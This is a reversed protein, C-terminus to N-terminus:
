LHSQQYPLQRPRVINPEISDLPVSANLQGDCMFAGDGIGEISIYDRFLEAHLESTLATTNTRSISVLCNDVEDPSRVLLDLNEGSFFLGGDVRVSNFYRRYFGRSDALEHYAPPEVTAKEVVVIEETCGASTLLLAFMASGTVALTSRTPM